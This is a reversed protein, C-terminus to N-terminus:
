GHNQKILMAANQSSILTMPMGIGPHTYHGSYYLNHAKKSKRSPRFLATQFLTHALGMSTGRYYNFMSKFERHSIVKKFVIYKKISEDLLEEINSVVASSFSDRIEENDDLGPAVPVLIFLNECNKPAASPDTKSSCGIYYSPFGPWSPKKFIAKFHDEWNEALFLNHHKLSKIKKKLGLFIIFATPALLRSNWYKENYNRHPKELLDTEAHHYDCSVLVIDTKVEGEDTFVSVARKNKINIKKVCSNFIYRVGYERGLKFLAEPLKYIGGEPYSVGKQMDAHSMLSYLAPTKDPSCGLFVTNFQLIQRAKKSQFYKKAYSDLDKFLHLKSGEILFRKDLFDLISNYDRYLFENCAINYIYESNKLYEELKRGGDKELIDFVASNHHQDKKIDFYIDRNFFIRYSPDLSKLTYYNSTSKNFLAFYNEFVEPMLYWTPGTDFIFDKHKFRGAVGGFDPNKEIVTVDFGHYALLPAASLGSLGAGIIVVNKKSKM